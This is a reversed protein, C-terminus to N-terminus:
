KLYHFLLQIGNFGMSTMMGRVSNSLELECGALPIAFAMGQIGLVAGFGIVGSTMVVYWTYLGSGISFCFLFM